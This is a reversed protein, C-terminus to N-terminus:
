GRNNQLQKEAVANGQSGKHSGGWLRGEKEYADRICSDGVPGLGKALSGRKNTSM